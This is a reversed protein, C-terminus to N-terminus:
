YLIKDADPKWFIRPRFGIEFHWSELLSYQLAIIEFFLAVQSIVIASFYRLSIVRQCGASFYSHNRLFNCLIYSNSRAPVKMFHLHEDM